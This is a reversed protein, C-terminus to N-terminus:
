KLPDQVWQDNALNQPYYCFPAVSHKIVHLYQIKDVVNM